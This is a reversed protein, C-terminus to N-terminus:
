ATGFGRSTMQNSPFEPQTIGSEVFSLLLKQFEHPSNGLEDVRLIGNAALQTVGQEVLGSEDPAEM